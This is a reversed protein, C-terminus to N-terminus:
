LNLEFTPWEWRKEFGMKKNVALMSHNESDNYTRVHRAGKAMAYLVTQLKVAQAINRGRHDPRVVTFGQDIVGEIGSELLSSEGVWVGSEKAVFSGDWVMIPSMLIVLEYDSYPMPLDVVAGPVDAAGSDELEKLRKGADPDSRFESSLRSTAVGQRELDKTLRAFGSEDFHELDLWSEFSKRKEVYGRKLYFRIASDQTSLVMPWVTEAGVQALEELLSDHLMARIGKGHWEPLVEIDLAFKHPHYQFFLHRYEGFGVTEGSHSEAIFRKIQYRTRGYCSDEYRIRKLFFPHDPLLTDHIRAISGYDEETFERIRAEGM